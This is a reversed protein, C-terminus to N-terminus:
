STYSRARHQLDIVETLQLTYCLVITAVIFIVSSYLLYHFLVLRSM